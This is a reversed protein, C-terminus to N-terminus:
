DSFKFSCLEGTGGGGERSRQLGAKLAGGWLPAQWLKLLSTFMTVSSALYGRNVCEFLLLLILM